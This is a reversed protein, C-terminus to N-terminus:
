FYSQVNYSLQALFLLDFLNDLKLYRYVFCFQTLIAAETPFLLLSLESGSSELGPLAFIALSFFFLWYDRLFTQYKSKQVKQCKVLLLFRNILSKYRLYELKVVVSPCVRQVLLMPVMAIKNALLNEILNSPTIYVDLHSKFRMESLYNRLFLIM